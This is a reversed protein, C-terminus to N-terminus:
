LFLKLEELSDCKHWLLKAIEASCPIKDPVMIAKMGADHASRIGNPSDEVAACKHPELGLSSCAMLYIDPAPKSHALEDGCIVKEFYDWLGARRLQREVAIRPTSSALALHYHPKLYALIEAAFPKLPLGNQKEYDYFKKYWGDFFGDADFAPGYKKKLIINSDATNCGRCENLVDESDKLGIEDAYSKWCIDCITESDLLVGDMDFVVAAIENEMRM